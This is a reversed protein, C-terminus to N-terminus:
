DDSSSRNKISAGGSVNLAKGIGQGKYYINSGGSADANLEGTVTIKVNSAGSSSAKCTEISLDYSNVKCAGSADISAIKATGTLKSVSAGGIDMSLKNVNIIGKIESAGSIDLKLDEAKLTGSISVYSAGSISLRNLSTVTVYAKLKRNTWNFGNWVGGDVSIILTGNKVETRIKSNYKEQDASIAVAQQSGQSLYVSVAGSVEISNFPEVRRIEANEDYVINQSYGVVGPVLLLLLLLYRTM